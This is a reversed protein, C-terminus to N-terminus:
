GAVIRGGRGRGARGAARTILDTISIGDTDADPLRSNFDSRYKKAATMDVAVTVYFHPISLKSLLMRRATAKAVKGMPVSRGLDLGAEERVRGRSVLEAAALVDEATISGQPGTGTIGELPVGREMALQRAKPSVRIKGGGARAPAAPPPAQGEGRSAKEVGSVAVKSPVLADPVEEGPDGVVAIVSFVKAEEGEAYLTRLVVGDQPATVEIVTKETEIECVVDGKRVTEGARRHWRVITGKEIDQGGQPMIVQAVM